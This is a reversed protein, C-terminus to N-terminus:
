STSYRIACVRAAIFVMNPNLGHSQALKAVSIGPECAAMAVDRRLEPGYNPRRKRSGARDIETM